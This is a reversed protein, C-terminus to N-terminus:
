LERWPFSIPVESPGASPSMRLSPLGSIQPHGLSTGARLRCGQRLPLLWRRGVNAWHRPCFGAVHCSSVRHM